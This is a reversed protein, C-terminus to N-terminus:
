HRPRALVAVHPLGRRLLLQRTLGAGFTRRLKLPMMQRDIGNDVLYPRSASLVEYGAVQLYRKLAARNPLWWFPANDVLILEAAPVRPRLTTLSTSIAENVLLHGDLVRRIGILAGVPDRLHLLLTGIVAFDFRGVLEESLDYVSVDRRDVKSKLARCAVEFGRSRTIQKLVNDTLEPRPEPWDYRHPDALDIAVVEAAGRREMEFAWFGDHTGVDLCRMGKLSAPLPVRRLASRLDYEGPTVVGHPLEMTHYWRLTAVEAALKERAGTPESM